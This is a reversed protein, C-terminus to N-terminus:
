GHRCEGAAVAKVLGFIGGKPEYNPRKLDYPIENDHRTAFRFYTETLCPLYCSFVFLQNSDLDPNSSGGQCHMSGRRM